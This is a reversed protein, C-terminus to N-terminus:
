ANRTAYWASVSRGGCQFSALPDVLGPGCGLDLAREAVEPTSISSASAMASFISTQVVVLPPALSRLFTLEFEVDEV